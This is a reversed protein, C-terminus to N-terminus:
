QRDNAIVAEAFEHVKEMLLKNGSKEVSVSLFGDMIMSEATERDIGRSRLYLIQDEDINSIASGHKSKTNNNKIILGPKSNAYGGESLLLIKSDYFGNSQISEEEIDINGRHMTVSNGSVAGRVQIDAYTGKGLQFSSDRIDMAQSGDTFSVGQTRFDSGEGNMISENAFIVKSGGSNVHFIKFEAYDELVSKIFTLDVVERSKQQLYNFNVKSRKGIFIYVTKGHVAKESADSLCKETIDVTCDDGVVIVSKLSLSKRESKESIVLRVNRTNEPVNVFYGNEWTANILYESRDNGTVKFITQGFLDPFEEMATKMDSIRIGATEKWSVTSDLVTIHADPDSFSGSAFDDNYLLTDLEEGTLDVYEKTTPSEKYDRTPSQLFSRFANVRYEYAADNFKTKLTESIQEM